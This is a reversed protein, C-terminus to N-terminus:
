HCAEGFHIRRKRSKRSARMAEMDDEGTDEVNMATIRPEKRKRNEKSVTRDEKKGLDLHHQLYMEMQGKRECYIEWEMSTHANCTGSLARREGRACVSIM